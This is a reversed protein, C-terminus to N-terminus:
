DLKGDDRRKHSYRQSEREFDANREYNFTEHEVGPKASMSGKRVHKMEMIQNSRYKPERKLKAQYPKDESNLVVYAMKWTSGKLNESAKGAAWKQTNRGNGISTWEKEGKEM